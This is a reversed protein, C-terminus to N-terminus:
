ENRLLVLPGIFNPMPIRARLACFCLSIGVAQGVWLTPEYPLQYLFIGYEDKDPTAGDGGALLLLCVTWIGYSGLYTGPKTRKVAACKTNM